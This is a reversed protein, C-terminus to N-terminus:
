LDVTKALKDSRGGAELEFMLEWRGPMHFMLGDAKYRNAGTSSVMPKYNMGHQHAPMRADVRLQVPGAVGGKPCATIDLSFHKNVAIGPVPSYYLVFRPSEVKQAGAPGECVPAAQAAAHGAALLAGASFLFILASRM